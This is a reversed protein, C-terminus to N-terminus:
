YHQYKKIGVTIAWTKLRVASSMIDIPIGVLSTFAFISACGTAVSTLIPLHEIYNLAACVRKHRKSILGNQNIEEM